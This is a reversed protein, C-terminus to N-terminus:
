RMGVISKKCASHNILPSNTDAGAVIVLTAEVNSPWCIPNNDQSVIIAILSVGTSTRFM